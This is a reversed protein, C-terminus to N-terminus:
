RRGQHSREIGSARSTQITNNTGGSQCRFKGLAGRVTALVSRGRRVYANPPPVFPCQTQEDLPNKWQGPLELEMVDDTSVEGTRCHTQHLCRKHSSIESFAPPPLHAYPGRDHESCVRFRPQLSRIAAVKWIMGQFPM